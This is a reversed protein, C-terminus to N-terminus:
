CCLDSCCSRYPRQASTRDSSDCESNLGNKRDASLDVTSSFPISGASTHFIIELKQNLYSLKFNRALATVIAVHEENGSLGQALDGRLVEFKTAMSAETGSCLGDPSDCKFVPINAELTLNCRLDRHISAFGSSAFSIIPMTLLFAATFFSKM